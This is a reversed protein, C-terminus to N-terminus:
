YIYKSFGEDKEWIKEVWKINSKYWQITKKLGEEFDVSPEWGLDNKIKDINLAYRLDNGPRDEVFIISSDKKGLLSLIKKAVDYVSVEQNGAINYVEGDVGKRLILDIASCHDEVFLWDRLHNGKGHITIPKDKLARFLSNPILKEPHQFLGYNNTCHTVIVPVGYSNRWARALLDGGAKAASYPVNPKFPDDEFFLRDEDLGLTGYVEDTSIHVLRKISKHKRVVELISHVGLINTRLFEDARYLLSRTVHTEAAFNVIYDINEKIVVMELTNRDVIDGQYFTYRPNDQVSLLNDKNGAYTLKDYVVVLDYPYKDLIYQVFNSGIFGAGGCVLIKNQKIIGKRIFIDELEKEKIGAIESADKIDINGAQFLKGAIIIRYQEKDLDPVSVPIKPTSKPDMPVIEYTM